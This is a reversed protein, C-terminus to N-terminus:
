DVMVIEGEWGEEGGGDAGGVGALLEGEALRVSEKVNLAAEERGGEGLEVGEPVPVEVCDGEELPEFVGVLVGVLVGVTEDVGVMLEVVGVTVGVGVEPPAVSVTGGPELPKVVELVGEADDGASLGEFGGEDEETEAPFRSPFGERWANANM